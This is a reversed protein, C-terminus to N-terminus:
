NCECNINMIKTGYKVLNKVESDSCIGFNKLVTIGKKSYLCKLCSSETTLIIDEKIDVLLMNFKNSM